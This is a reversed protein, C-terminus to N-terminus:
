SRSRASNTWVSDVVNRSWLIIRKLGDGEWVLYVIAHRARTGLRALDDDPLISVSLEPDNVAARADFKEPDISNDFDGTGINIVRVDLQEATNLIEDSSLKKDTPVLGTLSVVHRIREVKQNLLKIPKLSISAFSVLISCALSVVVVVVLAKLPSDKGMVSESM